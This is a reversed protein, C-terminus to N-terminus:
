AGCAAPACSVLIQQLNSATAETRNQQEQAGQMLWQGADYKNEAGIVVAALQAHAKLTRRSQDDQMQVLHSVTSETHKIMDRADNVDVKRRKVANQATEWCPKKKIQVDDLEEQLGIVMNDSRRRSKQEEKLKAETEALKKELHIARKESLRKKMQQLDKVASQATHLAAALELSLEGPDVARTLAM